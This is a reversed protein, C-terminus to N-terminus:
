LRHARGAAATEASGDFVRSTREPDRCGACTQSFSHSFSLPLSIALRRCRSLALSSRSGTVGGGRLRGAFQVLLLLLRRAGVPQCRRRGGRRRVRVRVLCRRRCRRRVVSEDPVREETREETTRTGDDRATQPRRERSKRQASWRQRRRQTRSHTPRTLRTTKHRRTLTTRGRRRRRKTKNPQKTGQAGTSFRGDTITRGRTNKNAFPASVVPDATKGTFVDDPGAPLCGVIPLLYTGVRNWYPSETNYFCFFRKKWNVPPVVLM